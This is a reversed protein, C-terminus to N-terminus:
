PLGLFLSAPYQLSLSLGLMHQLGQRRHVGDKLISPPHHRPEAIAIIEISPLNQCTRRSISIPDIAVLKGDPHLNTTDTHTQTCTCMFSQAVTQVCAKLPRDPLQTDLM